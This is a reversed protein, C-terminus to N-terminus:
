ENVQKETIKGGYSSTQILSKPDGYVSVEGGFSASAEFVENAFAGCVGGLSASAKTQESILTAAKVVGGSRAKAELSITKGTLQIIGGTSSTSRTKKVNIVASIQGGSSTKFYVTTQNITDRIIIESGQQSEILFVPSKHEINVTTNERKFKKSLKMKLKIIGSRNVVRVSEQNEGFIEVFNRNSKKLIVMIGNYVKLENFGELVRKHESQSFSIQLALLLVIRKM